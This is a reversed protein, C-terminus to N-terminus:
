YGWIDSIVDVEFRIGGLVFSDRGSTGRNPIYWATGYRSVVRGLKTTLTTGTVRLNPTPIRVIVDAG